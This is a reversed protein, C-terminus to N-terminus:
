PRGGEIPEKQPALLPVFHAGETVEIGLVVVGAPLPSPPEDDTIHVVRARIVWGTFGEDKFEQLDLLDGVKFDRDNVRVEYPKVGLAVDRWPDPWSKLRHINM